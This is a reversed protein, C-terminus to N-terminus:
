SSHRKSKICVQNFIFFQIWWFALAGMKHTSKLTVYSQLWEPEPYNLNTQLPSLFHEIPLIFTHWATIKSALIRLVCWGDIWGTALHTLGCFLQLECKKATTTITSNEKSHKIYTKKKNAFPSEQSSFCIHVDKKQALVHAYPCGQSFFYSFTGMWSCFRTHFTGRPLRLICLVARRFAFGHPPM